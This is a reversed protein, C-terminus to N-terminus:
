EALPSFCILNDKDAQEAQQQGDPAFFVSDRRNDPTDDLRLAQLRSAPTLNSKNLRDSSDKLPTFSLLPQDRGFMEPKEASLATSQEEEDSESSASPLIYKDPM